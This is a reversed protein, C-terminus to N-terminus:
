RAEGFYVQFIERLLEAFRRIVNFGDRCAEKVRHGPPIAQAESWSVSRGVRLVESCKIEEKAAILKNSQDEM